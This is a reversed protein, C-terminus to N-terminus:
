EKRRVNSVIREILDYLINLEEKSIGKIIEKDLIEFMQSMDNFTNLSKKTFKIEKYRADSNSQIREIMKNKEMSFLANSITTKSVDLEEELKKQNISKDQHIILYDLIRAQLPSPPAAMNGEKNIEFMKRGIAIDLKKLEEALNKKM